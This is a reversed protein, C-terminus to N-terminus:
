TIKALVGPRVSVGEQMLAEADRRVNAAVVARGLLREGREDLVQVETGEALPAESLRTFSIRQGEPTAMARFVESLGQQRLSQTIRRSLALCALMPLLALPLVCAAMLYPSIGLTRQVLSLAQAQRAAADPYVRVVFRQPPTAETGNHLYMALGYDGPAADAPIDAQARWLVGGLWFGSFTEQMTVTVGPPSVRLTLEELKETGRPMPDTLNLSDGPLTEILRPNKRGGAIMGDLALLLSLCIILTGLRGVHKRRAILVRFDM